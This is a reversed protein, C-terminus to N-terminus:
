DETRGRCGFPFRQELRIEVSDEALLTLVPCSAPYMSDSALVSALVEEGAERDHSLWQVYLKHGRHEYGLRLL